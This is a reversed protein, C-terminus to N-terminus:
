SDPRMEVWKMATPEYSAMLKAVQKSEEDSSFLFDKDRCVHFLMLTPNPFLLMEM